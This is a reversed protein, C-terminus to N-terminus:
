KSLTNPYRREKGEKFLDVQDSTSTNVFQEFLPFYHIGQGFAANKAPDVNYLCTKSM